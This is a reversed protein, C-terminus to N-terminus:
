WSHRRMSACKASVARVMPQANQRFTHRPARWSVASVLAFKEAEDGFRLSSTRIGDRIKCEKWCSASCGAYGGVPVTRIGESWFGVRDNLKGREVIGLMVMMTLVRLVERLGGRVTTSQAQM